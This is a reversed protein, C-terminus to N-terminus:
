KFRINIHGRVSNSDPVFLIEFHNFSKKTVTDESRILDDFYRDIDEGNIDSDIAKIVDHFVKKMEKMGISANENAKNITVDIKNTDNADLMEIYYSYTEGFYKTKINGKKINVIPSSSFSNYSKIFNNVVVDDAYKLKDGATNKPSDINNQGKDKLSGFAVLILVCVIIFSILKILRMEKM